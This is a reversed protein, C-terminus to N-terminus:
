SEMDEQEQRGWARWKESQTDLAERIELDHFAVYIVGLGLGYLLHGVLALIAQADLAIPQGTLARLTLLSVFFWLAVSYALAWLINSRYSNPVIFMSFIAGFAMSMVSHMAWITVVGQTGLVSAVNAGLGQGELGPDALVAGTLLLAGFFLGGVLGGIIGSTVRGLTVAPRVPDFPRTRSM